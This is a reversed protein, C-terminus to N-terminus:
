ALRCSEPSRQREPPPLCHCAAFRAPSGPLRAPPCGVVIQCIGKPSWGGNKTALSRASLVRRTPEGDERVTALKWASLGRIM